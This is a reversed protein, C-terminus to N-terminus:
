GTQVLPQRGAESCSTCHPSGFTKLLTKKKFPCKLQKHMINFIFIVYSVPLIVEAFISHLFTGSTLAVDQM